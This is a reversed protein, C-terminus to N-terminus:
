RAVEPATLPRLGDMQMGPMDGSMGPGPNNSHSGPTLPGALRGVAFSSGFLLGLVFVFALLARSPRQEIRGQTGRDPVPSPISAM